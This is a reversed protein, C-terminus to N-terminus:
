NMTLSPNPWPPGWTSVTCHACVFSDPSRIKALCFPATHKRANIKSLIGRLFSAAFRESLSEQFVNLREKQTRCDRKLHPWEKTKPPYRCTHKWLFARHNFGWLWAFNLPDSLPHSGLRGRLTTESCIAPTKYPRLQPCPNKYRWISRTVKSHLENFLGKKNRTLWSIKFLFDCRFHSVM